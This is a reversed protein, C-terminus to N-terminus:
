LSRPRGWSRRTTRRGVGCSSRCMVAMMMRVTRLMPYRKSRCHTDRHTKADPEETGGNTKTAAM